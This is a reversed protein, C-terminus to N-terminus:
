WYVKATLLQCVVLATWTCPLDKRTFRHLHVDGEEGLLEAWQVEFQLNIHHTRDFVSRGGGGGPPSHHVSSNHLQLSTSSHSLPLCLPLLLLHSMKIVKSSTNSRMISLSDNHLHLHVHTHNHIQVSMIISDEVLGACIRHAKKTPVRGESVRGRKREQGGERGRRKRGQKGTQRQEEGGERGRGGGEREGERGRGGGEKEGGGETSGVSLDRTVCIHVRVVCVRLLLSSLVLM